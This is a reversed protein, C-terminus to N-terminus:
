GKLNHMSVIIKYVMKRFRIIQSNVSIIQDQELFSDDHTQSERLVYQQSTKEGNMVWITTQDSHCNKYCHLLMSWYVAAILYIIDYQKLM